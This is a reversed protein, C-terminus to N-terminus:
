GFSLSFVAHNKGEDALEERVQLMRFGELTHTAMQAAARPASTDGSEGEGGAGEIKRVEDAGRLRGASTTTASLLAASASCAATRAAQSSVPASARRSRGGGGRARRAEREFIKRRVGLDLLRAGGREPLDGAPWRRAEDDGGDLGGAHAEEGAVVVGREREVQLAAFLVHGVHEDLM